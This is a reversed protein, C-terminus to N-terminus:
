APALATGVWVCTGAREAWFQDRYKQWSIGEVHVPEKASQTFYEDGVAYVAPTYRTSQYRYEALERRDFGLSEALINKTKM